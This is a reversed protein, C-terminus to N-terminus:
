LSNDKTSAPENGRIFILGPETFVIPMYYNFNKNTQDPACYM